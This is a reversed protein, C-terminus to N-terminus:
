ESMEIRARSRITEPTLDSVANYLEVHFTGPKEGAVEAAMEGALGFAVLAGAAAIFHDKQVAAFAGTIASAMCGTGTVRSLMPHGNSVRAIREGDSVVDVPGTVATACGRARALAVAVDELSSRASISEVGRIEAAIGALTSVEAQNGRIIDVKVADLISVSSRTRMATAGAGVPDLVVAAGVRNAQQGAVRMSEIWEASLTGINLVLAGAVSVMEAVEEPAHSMVPLAGLALLINATENMVVYNTINHVLPRRRRISELDEAIQERIDM